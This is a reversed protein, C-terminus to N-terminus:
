GGGSPLHHARLEEQKEQYAGCLSPDRPGTALQRELEFVEQELQEIAADKRRSAGQTYNRCFLWTRVKGVDSWQRASPFACRRGRWALWFEQFSAVFGVDELLSNNFHRYAPPTPGSSIILCIFTTGLVEPQLNPSFLTAM